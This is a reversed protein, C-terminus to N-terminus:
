LTGYGGKNMQYSKLLQEPIGVPNLKVWESGAADSIKVVEGCDSFFEKSVEKNTIGNQQWKGGMFELSVIHESMERVCQMFEGYTVEVDDQIVAMVYGKPWRAQHKNVANVIKDM